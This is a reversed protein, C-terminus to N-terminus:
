KAVLVGSLLGETLRATDTDLTQAPALPPAHTERWFTDLGRRAEEPGHVPGGVGAMVEKLERAPAPVLAM